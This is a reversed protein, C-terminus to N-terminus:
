APLNIWSVLQRREAKRGFEVTILCVLFSLLIGYTGLKCSDGWPKCGETRTIAVAGCIPAEIEGGRDSVTADVSAALGETHIM